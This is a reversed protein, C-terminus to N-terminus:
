QAVEEGAEETGEAEEASAGDADGGKVAVSLRQISLAVMGGLDRKLEKRVQRPGNLLVQALEGPVLFSVEHEGDGVIISIQNM